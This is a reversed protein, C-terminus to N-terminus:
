NYALKLYFKKQVLKPTKEYGEDEDVDDNMM